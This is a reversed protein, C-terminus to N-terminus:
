GESNAGKMPRCIFENKEKDFSKIQVYEDGALSYAISRMEYKKEAGFKQIIQVHHDFEDYGKLNKSDEEKM